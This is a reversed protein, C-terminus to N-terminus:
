ADGFRWMDVDAVPEYGIRAYLANSTPNSLDTFLFCFRRGADLLTRTVGATLAGAYGRGRREPPTYVPGIRIGNPTPGGWGALSVPFGGDEWVAFDGDPDELRRDVLTAPDEHLEPEVVEDM